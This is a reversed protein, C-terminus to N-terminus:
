RCRGRLCRAASAELELLRTIKGYGVVRNGERVLFMKGPQLRGIHEDPSAFALYAKVTDGAHVEDIDPYSQIADWDHGDYFFQGRYDSRLNSNRGGHETALFTIEAELDRPLNRM